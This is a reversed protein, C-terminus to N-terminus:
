PQSLALRPGGALSLALLARQAPTLSNRAGAVVRQNALYRQVTPTMMARGVAHPVALGAIAGLGAESPGGFLSGFTAGIAAPVAHAMARPTTGSQPLPSMVSQGAQALEAFDGRGRIFQRKNQKAAAQRLRAPTIIGLAAQEGAGGLANEIVLIDRYQRRAEQWAARDAPRISRQMAADLANRIDFLASSLQPDTRATGRAQKDLRSRYASYTEGDIPGRSAADLIDRIQAQVVPARQSPSVLNRYEGDATSLDRFLRGDPRLANNAALTDFQSGIRTFAREMVEPTARPATEGIRRLAAATFQEGQRELQDSVHGRALESEAYQLSKHGTRQGATLATVGENELATVAAQRAPNSPFPTRARALASPASAGLLAGATRAYPELATGETVEGAAESGVAPIVTQTLFRRALSGPGALAAPAFEGISQAFKGATTEPTHMPGVVKEAEQQVASSTPLGTLAVAKELIAELGNAPPRVPPPTPLGIKSGVAQVGAGVINRMDGPLGALSTVGRVLGSAGSKAVDSLTDPVPPTAFPDHDVPVLKPGVAFPDQDVPVLNM